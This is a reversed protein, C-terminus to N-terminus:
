DVLLILGGYRTRDPSLVSSEILDGLIDIGRVDDLVIRQGNASIVFGKQITDIILDRLNELQAVTLNIKDKPRVVDSMSQIIPRGVFRIQTTSADLDPYYAPLPARYDEFPETRPL